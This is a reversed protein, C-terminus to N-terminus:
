IQSALIGARQLGERAEAKLSYSVSPGSREKSLLISSLDQGDVVFRRFCGFRDYVLHGILLGVDGKGRVKLADQYTGGPNEAIWRLFQLEEENPPRVKSFAVAITDVLDLDQVETAMRAHAQADDASLEIPRLALERECADRLSALDQREARVRLERIERTAMTSLRDIASAVHKDDFAGLDDEGAM